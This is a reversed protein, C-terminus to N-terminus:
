ITSVDSMFILLTNDVMNNNELAAIIKKLGDDLQTMMGLFIRRDRDDTTNEYMM